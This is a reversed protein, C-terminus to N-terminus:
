ACVKLTWGSRRRLGEGSEAFKLQKKKHERPRSEAQACILGAVASLARVTRVATSTFVVAFSAARRSAGRLLVVRLFTAQDSSPFSDFEVDLDDHMM